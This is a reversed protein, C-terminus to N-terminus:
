LVTLIDFIFVAVSIADQPQKKTKDSWSIGHFEHEQETIIDTYLYYETTKVGSCRGSLACVGQM